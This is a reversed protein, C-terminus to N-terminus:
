KKSSKSGATQAPPPVNPAQTGAPVSDGPPPPPADSPPPSPVEGAKPAEPDGAPAQPALPAIRVPEEFEVDRIELRRALAESTKVALDAAADPEGCKRLAEPLAALAAAIIFQNRM